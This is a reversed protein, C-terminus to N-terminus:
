HGSTQLGSDRALGGKKNSVFFSGVRGRGKLTFGAPGFEVCRPVLRAYERPLGLLVSDTYSGPMSRLDILADEESALRLMEEEFRELLCKDAVPLQDVLLQSARRCRFGHTSVPLLRVPTASMM